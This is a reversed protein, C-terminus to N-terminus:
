ELTFYKQGVYENVQVMQKQMYNNYIYKNQWKQINMRDNKDM